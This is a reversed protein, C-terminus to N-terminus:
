LKQYINHDIKPNKCRITIFNKLMKFPKVADAKLLVLASASVRVFETARFIYASPEDSVGSFVLHVVSTVHIVCSCIPSNKFKSINFELCPSDGNKDSTSNHKHRTYM